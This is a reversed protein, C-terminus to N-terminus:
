AAEYTVNIAYLDFNTNFNSNTLDAVVFSTANKSQFFIHNTGPNVLPDVITSTSMNTLGTYRMVGTPYGASTAATFPISLRAIGNLTNRSIGQLEM